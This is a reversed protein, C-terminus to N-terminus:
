TKNDKTTHSLFIQPRVPRTQSGRGKSPVRTYPRYIKYFFFKISSPPYFTHAFHKNQDFAISFYKQEHFHRKRFGRLAGPARLLFILDCFLFLSGSNQGEKSGLLFFYPWFAIKKTDQLNPSCKEGHFNKLRVFDMFNIENKIPFLVHPFPLNGDERPM